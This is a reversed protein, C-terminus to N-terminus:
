PLLLSLISLPAGVQGRLRVPEVLATSPMVRRPQSVWTPYSPEFTSAQIGSLSSFDLSRHVAPAPPQTGPVNEPHPPPVQVGPNQSHLVVVGSTKTTSPPARTRSFLICSAWHSRLNWYIILNPKLLPVTEHLSISESIGAPGPTTPHM